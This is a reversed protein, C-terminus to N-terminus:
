RLSSAVAPAEIDFDHVNHGPKVERVLEAGKVDAQELLSVFEQPTM